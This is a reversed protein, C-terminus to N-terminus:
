VHSATDYALNKQPDIIESVNIDDYIPISAKSKNEQHMMQQIKFKSRVFLITVIILASVILTIVVSMSIATSTYIVINSTGAFLLMTQYSQWLSVWSSPYQNLTPIIITELVQLLEVRLSLVLETQQVWHM